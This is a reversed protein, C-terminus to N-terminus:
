REISRVLGGFYQGMGAISALSPPPRDRSCSLKGNNNQIWGGNRECKKTARFVVSVAHSGDNKACADCKLTNKEGLTDKSGKDMYCSACSEQYGGPPIGAGM